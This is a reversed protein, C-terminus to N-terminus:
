LRQAYIEIPQGSPGVFIVKRREIALVTYEGIKGGIRLQTPRSTGLQVTTFSLTSDANLATGLVIPRPPERPPPASVTVVPEDEGPLRYRRAPAARDPAFVDNDVIAEVDVGVIAPPANLATSSAPLTAASAEDIAVTYARVGAWALVGVALALAVLAFRMGPAKLLERGTM